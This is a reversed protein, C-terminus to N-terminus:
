PCTFCYTVAYLTPHAAIASAAANELAEDSIEGNLSDEAVRDRNTEIETAGDRYGTILM